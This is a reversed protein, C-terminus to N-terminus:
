RAATRVAVGQQQAAARPPRSRLRWAFGALREQEIPDGDNYVYLVPIDTRRRLLAEAILAPGCGRPAVSVVGDIPRTRWTLLASGVTSITEGFPFGDFLERSAAELERIDHWFVWPQEARAAGVLKDVVWRMVRLTVIRQMRLKSTIPLEQVDRWAILEFFEAFPETTVRLGQDALRRQLDDNGWEDVRLFIDGALLVDRLGSEEEEDHPLRAYNRSAEAVLTALRGVVDRADSVVGRAGDRRELEAALRDQYAAFLADADGATREAALHHYRLANLLDQTVLGAWAAPMVRVDSTLLSLDGVAVRGELGLRELGLRVTLPFMNARCSRFGNGVSLFITRGDDAPPCERFYREMGGWILQYPLCEKGSCADQAARMTAADTPGVFDAPIGRGRLAAAVQRGLTGGVTGFLVRMGDGADLSHAPPEAYRALRRADAPSAGGGAARYGEVAHLFAQVRTVYGALGGHGDTEFVAHPYGELLDAFLPEVFSNPGCGFAGLLLPFVDGAARAALTVRLSASASAWHVRPLDPTGGPLPYCDVPLAVAGNAAVLDHIGANLGPDHMVHTEGVVAVVPFGERRAFELAREGIARLSAEYRTQADLAAAHAAGVAARSVRGVAAHGTVASSAAAALTALEDATEALRRGLERGGLGDTAQPLIVPRVVASAGPRGELATAIMEPAGQAMPCTSRGAGACPYPVNVVKPLLVAQPPGAAVDSARGAGVALGHALKVPACAGAAGCLRDGAALTTEEPLMVSVGAGLRALFAAFFPALDIMYHAYPLSIRLGALPGTGSAGALRPSAVGGSVDADGRTGRGERDGPAGLGGGGRPTDCGEGDGPRVGTCAALTSRLLEWRERFPNPAERPLKRGVAGREEYKPCNGGSRITRLEGAVEVQASEIRCLNGCTKDGCRLERRAVVRTELLRRLDFGALEGGCAGKECLAADALLAIGIAGMAGPDAPVIVERGTVAALTRALSSNTAPKGQFFVRDLLRRNGMVRNRYNRIVSYQLGAFVDERTFGDALAEAVLDTVFVTCTQGLDPPATARAALEGFRAIDDLGLAVAQEELFSGTGASCVRNMDSDVVRGDRVTIFKADQGGIEVISLSRGGDPDLRAAATAHAVIENQVTLREEADDFAARFVSSAADRGSGTLGVAVVPTGSMELVRAVLSRAAEVPNGDTRRYVSALVKGTGRDLLAAKSGTSGLDLGLVATAVATTGVTATRDSREDEATAAGSVAAASAASGNEARVGAPRKWVREAMRVVTGPGEDAPPQTRIRRPRERVLETLDDPWGAGDPWERAAAFWLAGLADFAGAERAVAVPAEWAEALAAALPTIRAGNGVLLVPV